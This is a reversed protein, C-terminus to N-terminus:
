AVSVSTLQQPMNAMNVYVHATAPKGCSTGAKVLAFGDPLMKLTANGRGDVALAATETDAAGKRVVDFYPHTSTPLAHRRMTALEVIAYERRSGGDWYSNIGIGCSPFVSVYAKLKRYVPFAAVILAKVEPYQKLELTQM